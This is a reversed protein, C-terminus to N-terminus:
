RSLEIAAPYSGTCSEPSEDVFWQPIVLGDCDGTGTGTYAGTRNPNPCSDDGGTHSLEVFVTWNCESTLTATIVLFAQVAFGCDLTYECLQPGTYKWICESNANSAVTDYTLAYVGGITDCADCGADAWGVAGLDCNITDPWKGGNCCIQNCTSTTCCCPNTM